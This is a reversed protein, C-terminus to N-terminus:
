RRFTSASVSVIPGGKTLLSKDIALVIALVNFNAFADVATGGTPSRQLQTVLANSTGSDLAPCGATDFSLSAAAGTVIRATERFGALNFFFPDNRLGSFVKVRGDASEIGSVGNANGSVYADKGVWCEINQTVDFQCIVDINSSPADLFNERSSTRFVYQVSDSFQSAATANRVLDMVLYVNGADPSMWAFVDTIDAAPDASASPSDIHDAAFSLRPVLCLIALVFILWTKKM